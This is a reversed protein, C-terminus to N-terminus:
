VSATLSFFTYDGQMPTLTYALKASSRKAIEMLGLGAGPTMDVKGKRLQEKYRKRLGAPELANIEDVSATLADLDARCVCNGSTVTYAGDKRAITIICANAEEPGLQRSAVYNKVNQALEIYIAFVDLIAAKEIDEAHMYNRVAQGIEDIISHSFPGSFCIMIGAKGMEERINFLDM